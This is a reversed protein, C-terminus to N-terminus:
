KSKFYDNIRNIHDKEKGNLLQFIQQLDNNPMSDMFKQYSNEVISKEIELAMNYATHPLPNNQFETKFQKIKNRANKIIGIEEVSILNTVEKEESCLSLCKKLLGAHDLEENALQEWFDADKQNSLKFVSYIEYADIEFQASEELLLKINGM